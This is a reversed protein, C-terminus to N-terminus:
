GKLGPWPLFQLLNEVLLYSILFRICFKRLTRLQYLSHFCLLICILNSWVSHKKFISQYVKIQISLICFDLHKYDIFQTFIQDDDLVCAWYKNSSHTCELPYAKPFRKKDTCYNYRMYKKQFSQLKKLGEPGLDQTQWAETSAISNTSVSSGCSSKGFSVVCANAKFNRYAAVFPGLTWNTKVRGGQTAWEEGCWITSYVKM